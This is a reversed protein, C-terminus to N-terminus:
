FCNSESGIKRIVVRAIAFGQLIPKLMPGDANPDLHHSDGGHRGAHNHEVPDGLAKRGDGDM